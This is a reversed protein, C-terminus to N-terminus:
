YRFVIGFTVGQAWFDSRNFLPSPNSAGVLTGTGGNLITNQSTNVNHDIQNGPRVVQNWYLVDYGAYIGMWRTVQYGIKLEGAPLVTFQNHTYHGINSPQAFIGGPFSGPTLGGPGFQSSSGQIDVSEHNIGLGVTGTLDVFWREHQFSFRGGLQGGYFQNRTTFSDNTTNVTGVLLDQSSTAINLNEQLNMYLGGVLLNFETGCSRYCNFVGNLQAGWLQLSSSVTVTGRFQQSPDGIIVSNQGAFNPDTNNIPVYLAPDNITSSTTNKLLWFGSGEVGVTNCSNLWTGLTVRAGSFTGLDQSSNGILVQTGPQGISGPLPDNPNGTTVLPGPTPAGKVWWLLYDAGGWSHYPANSGGSVYPSIGLGPAEQM